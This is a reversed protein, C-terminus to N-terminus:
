ETPTEPTEKESAPSLEKVAEILESISREKLSQKGLCLATMIANIPLFLFVVSIIGLVTEVSCGEFSSVAEKVKSVDFPSNSDVHCEKEASNIAKLAKEIMEKSITETKTAKM